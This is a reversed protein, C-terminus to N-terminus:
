KFKVALVFPKSFKRIYGDTDFFEAQLLYIGGPAPQGQENYGDWIFSGENNLIFNKLLKKILVGHVNFISVNTIKGPGPFQYNMELLDEYGDNDPSFTKSALKFNEQFVPDDSYQSNKYGPTAFGSASTASRLNGPDNNPRNLKSRELSVGERTKLLQFHMKDSYSLQDIKQGKSILIATGADDNFIPFPDIKIISATDKITYEKKINDPDPTLAIYNGPEIFVQKKSLQQISNISDKIMRAISLDKLDLPYDSNNLIEVFDSGGARPNFLIETILIDNKSINRSITFELSNFEAPIITNKCDSVNSATIRYTYGKSLPESFTLMVQNFDPGSIKSNIPNGVGNNLFYNSNVSAKVSDASKNFTLTIRLSDIIEVLKLKLVEPKYDTQYVSNKKGPTGGSSDRSATWNQFGLCISEPDILELTYGGKRKESDRYWNFDYRLKHIEKGKNNKLILIDTENNLDPWVPLGIVKGYSLFLSTDKEACLILYSKAAIEGKTLSYNRGQDGFNLGTINVSRSTPNFLEVFEAEPLGQSPSPDAFIENIILPYDIEPISPISFSIQSHTLSSLKGSCSYLSDAFLTYGTGENFKKSFSLILGTYDPLIALSKSRGIEKPIYFNNAKLFNTDPIQNFLISLTSDTLINVSDIKLEVDISLTVGQSNKRGPTGGSQDTSAAWNYFNPCSISNLNIKELSWGGSKKLADKYWKDSYSVSDVTRNKHSKLVLHDSSNGLSPWPSIGATKGFAKYQTTDAAPCLILFEGPALLSKKLNGKTQTDILSWGDLNITDKGSNHIEVFEVLPLGVEPSPDAFIETIYILATDPKEAPTPAAAPLTFSLHTSTSQISNRSCDKVGSIALEYTKGAVFKESFTIKLQRSKSDETVNKIQGASPSLVFHELRISTIDISKNLFLLLTTDSKLIISDAKFPISDYNRINVSNKKGPTGGLTDTSAMWNLIDPCKSFVDIRELSWGGLRKKADDYWIDSYSVSDVTRNKFSKLVLRDSSNGLSPWDSIGATKGFAKYQSTDAAPCLILFEGPALPNKKLSGKTQTDNLSWGELNLTDKGPNHIEVFEVLPLGVEPSPDAFIETIYIMATDPKELPPQSTEPLTFSWQSSTSQISNGSCDKIGSINLKYTKGALFKENFTIKLHRTKSDETINKIQGASPSLVFNESRISNIDASKNFFLLLTTDSKVTLSDAKFAISNYNRINVSNQKGPTGGLTDTSATWNLIDPCKSFVDIRELSWGGQKKKADDYWTDSYAISDVTRNKFSKLVLRDSSNGLSPWDSIGATKGLVKYQISDTTPCLILFEGPAILTKKISGKSQSDNLSWGELNLTDKGPNHIEVFEVLPLGVEPSPDAFIETIFVLATDPKEIPTPAVAPLTFSLHSSISQISNGSCDKVGSIALEYTKGALFKESFTIKLERSKSDETIAKILGSAPILTFSEIQTSRTNGSKNLYLLLTTDSKVILSDVKFPISDYNQITASNQKGPTGGSTDISATWNLIDPCKSFVDIRELSWGGQKKKADDYWIYSYTVSDVTRNKFSKLVLRDSSNGLSPWPSIGATKGYAKYQITDADPCLVLYEGPALLSKKLNGKTQTDNLSWGELNITDKGPNHIEVFEVLPLGVEPSPDAFIETIYLLATDPKEPPMPTILPLSFSLQSPTSQISNGSCDKLGSISLVYNEGASFKESFTIRLQKYDTDPIINRISGPNPLMTFNEELVTSKDLHRNFYLIITTDSLRKISDVKPSLLNSNMVYVSNEKGPTGGASDVSAAWNFLGQCLSKPDIRELSWGGQKKESSRYWIDSYNLSDILTNKANKLKLIDGSNNLGPWPSIGLVKGFKQFESTDTKACLILISGPAISINGLTATSSPDLFKWNNLSITKDSSNILEVYEVSPLDIQPSPDPFIENIIIDGFSGYYPKIYSFSFSNGSKIMNGSRDGVNLVTLLFNGTNLPESLRIRYNQPDATTNIQAIHGPFNNINYNTKDKVSLSDMAESFRVELTSSDLVTVMNLVPAISDTNLTGIKFDDFFHKQFFSATSQQIFIGFSSTNIHTNDVFSGENVITSNTGIVERDLTFLGLHNRSVRIKVTNNSSGVSGNIGDIIRISSGTTGSRKYLSIEDETNGIRIFYGNIMTSQLDAKNSILYIDAYNLGSTSFQLNIWFEWYCNFALSNATSLYFNGSAKNSESRLRNNIIKFDGGSNSGNWEPNANFNGDSFDDVIQSFGAHCCFVLLLILTNKM